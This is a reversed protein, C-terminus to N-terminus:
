IKSGASLIVLYQRSDDFPWVCYREETVNLSQKINDLGLSALESYNEKIHNQIYAKNKINEKLLKALSFDTIELIDTLLIVKGGDSVKSLILQNYRELIAPMATYMENLIRNLADLGYIGYDYLIRLLAEMQTFVIQTYTPLVLVMNYKENGNTFVETWDTSVKLNRIYNIIEEEDARSGAMQSLTEFFRAEELGSYDLRQKSIKAAQEKNIKQRAIGDFISKIDIDSLVISDFVSTLFGLDIDNCEGAGFVFLNGRNGEATNDSIFQSVEARYEKWDAYKRDPSGSSNVDNNFTEITFNKIKFDM